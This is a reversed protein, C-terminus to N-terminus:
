GSKEGRRDQLVMTSTSTSSLPIEIGTVRWVMGIYADSVVLVDVIRPARHSQPPLKLTSKAHLLLSPRPRATKKKPESLPTTPPIVEHDDDSIFSSSSSWGIRKLALIEDQKEDALIVFFGETQPKPFSPAWVRVEDRPNKSTKDGGARNQRRLVVTLGQASVDTISVNLNPILAAARVFQSQQRTPVSLQAMLTEVSKTSLASLSILSSAVLPQRTTLQNFDVDPRVGPFISFPNDTPWRASKICQLLTMM